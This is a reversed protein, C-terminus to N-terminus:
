FLKFGLYAENETLAIMNSCGIDQMHRLWSNGEESIECESIVILENIERNM